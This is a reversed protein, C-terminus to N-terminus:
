AASRNIILDVSTRHIFNTATQEGLDRKADIFTRAFRWGNATWPGAIADIMAEALANAVTYSEAWCDAQVRAPILSQFGGMTQPRSDSVLTLTVAPFGDEQPREVWSVRDEAIDTVAQTALARALLAEQWQM